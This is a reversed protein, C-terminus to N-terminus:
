GSLQTSAAAITQGGRNMEQFAGRLSQVTLQLARAMDGIEDKRSLQAQAMDQRIDGDAVDKLRAVAVGLPTTIGRTLLTGLLGTTTVALVTALLLVLVANTITGKVEALSDRMGQQRYENLTRYKGDLIQLAPQVKETYMRRAEVSKGAKALEIVANDLVRLDATAAEVEQILQHAKPTKASSTLKELNALYGTRTAAIRELHAQRVKADETAAIVGVDMVVSNLQGLIDKALVIKVTQGDVSEVGAGIGRFGAVALLAASTMLVLLLGLGLFLRRGITLNTLM